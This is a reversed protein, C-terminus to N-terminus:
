FAGEIVEIQGDLIAVVDFRLEDARVENEAMWAAALRRIRAQKAPTVAEAPLGFTATRRTKVEVFAIARRRRLVLDLEGTRGARWNRDLVEWGRAQYWRAAMDEGDAGLARRPDSKSAGVQADPEAAM